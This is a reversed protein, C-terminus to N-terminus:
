IKTLQAYERSLEKTGSPFRIVVTSDDVEVVVGAGFIQHSVRDGSNLEPFETESDSDEDDDDFSNGWVNGGKQWSEVDTLTEPIDTAFRSLPNSNRSGFYLRSSTHTMFLKKRARTMAVYALRREEEMGEPELFSNSHPFIGEEMGVIFVYDFELGKASHITMLKVKPEVDRNAIKDEVLALEELFGALSEVAPLNAFNKAVSQLEKINELRSEGESSGDDLSLKYGSLDIVYEILVDVTKNKSQVVLERIVRTFETVGKGWRGVEIDTLSLLYPIIAKGTARAERELNTLTVSGVGRRPVNIIRKASLDDQQNSLIKLYALTDKIEKRKYFEISGVIQYSIGDELLAEEMARSQANTRYLIAIDDSDLSSIQESVWKAEGKEDLAEFLTITEGEDNETWLTKHKQNRNLSIVANSANLIKKSSRYNQELKIVVADPYDKEFNLINHITAGRFSYISQADDGVVCINKYKAALLGTLIYQAHNTDQYEDVLVYKFLEQYRGLVEANQQFLEVTKMLLDDFDFASNDHLIRQYGPYIQSVLQQIYGVAFNGYQASTILESKASSIYNLAARPRIAKEGINLSKMADKVADLQDATDYISFEKSYGILDSHRRLIRVCISHFTGVWPLTLGSNKGGSILMSIRQKMEKAAKNTFTVALINEPYAYKKNILNFVRYTLVRTKGSGAGALILIPGDVLDVAKQQEPNLDM